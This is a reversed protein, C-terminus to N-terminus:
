NSAIRPKRVAELPTLKWKEKEGEIYAVEGKERQRKEKKNKNEEKIKVKAQGGEGCM